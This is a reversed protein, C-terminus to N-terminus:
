HLMGEGVKAVLHSGEIEERPGLPKRTILARLTHDCQRHSRRSELNQTHRPLTFIRTVLRVKRHILTPEATSRGTARTRHRSRAAGRGSAGNDTESTSGSRRESKGRSGGGSKPGHVM